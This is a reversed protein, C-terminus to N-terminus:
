SFIVENEATCLEREEEEQPLVIGVPSMRFLGVFCGAVFGDLWNKEPDEDLSRFKQREERGQELIDPLLADSLCCDEEVPEM